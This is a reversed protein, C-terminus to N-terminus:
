SMITHINASGSSAQLYKCLIGRILRQSISNKQALPIYMYDSAEIVVRTQAKEKRRFNKGKNVSPYKSVSDTLAGLKFLIQSM